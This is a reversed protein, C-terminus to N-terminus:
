EYRKQANRSQVGGLEEPVPQRGDEPGVWLRTVDRKLEKLNTAKSERLQMKM